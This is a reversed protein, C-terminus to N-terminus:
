IRKMKGTRTLSISTVFKIRRPIKFDQLSDSLINRIQTETLNSGDRRIIDACLITGLVSNPRGYVRVDLIDTISRIRDEVEQPNVKYGGVNILENRRSKFKFLGRGQDIWEILDGTPYYGNVLHLGNSIGLLSHHVHLEDNEVKILHRIKEPIQFESGRSAFLTGAETSAYINTIRANPFIMRMMEYLRDDSKEGGFTVRRVSECGLTYPLLLRYFTPTASIHTVGGTRILEYTDERRAGFINIIPNKNLFAQLFVQLGAMHTPNYAFGWINDSFREGTKVARALNAFSHTVKKPQGTTGSTFITIEAESTKVKDILSEVDPFFLGKVPTARNIDTLGLNSLENETFDSDVLTLPSDTALGIILNSFFTYLDDSQLLPFFLIKGNVSNLLDLYSYDQGNDRLFLGTM